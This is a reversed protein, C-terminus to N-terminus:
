GPDYLRRNIGGSISVCEGTIFKANESCLFLALEAVESPDAVRGLPHFQNLMEFNEEKGIFGDLLMQTAVAAPEIANVRFNAGISVALNRTLASLAAKSTAYALFEPKTVSAHVSSINVVSGENKTLSFALAQILFLPASLNVALTQNWSKRDVNELIALNQVAANNVLAYIGNKGVIQLMEECASKAYGSSCAIKELDLQLYKHATTNVESSPYKDTGIVLYGNQSFVDVLSSGIGGCAGTIVAWKEDPIM